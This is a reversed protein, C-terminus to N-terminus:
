HLATPSTNPILENNGRIWSGAASPELCSLVVAMWEAVVADADTQDRLTGAFRDVIASSDYRSRNFRRDVLAQVRKRMPNFLSAVVLTSGAVLVSPSSGGLGTVLMGPLWVLFAYLSGLLILILAYSATRSILRDIEFLRFRLIAIGVSVPVATLAVALALNWGLSDGPNDVGILEGLIAVAVFAVVATVFWKLQLREMGEARRYRLVLALVSAPVITYVSVFSMWSRISCLATADTPCDLWDTGRPISTALTFAQVAIGLWLAWRWRPSKLRGTPFVLFLQGILIFPIAFLEEAVTVQWQRADALALGILFLGILSMLWAVAPVRNKGTILAGVLVFALAAVLQASDGRVDEVTLFLTVWAGTGLLAIAIGAVRHSWRRTFSIPRNRVEHIERQGTVPDCRM